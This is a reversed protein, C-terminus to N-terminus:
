EGEADGGANADTDTDVREPDTVALGDAEDILDRAHNESIGDIAALDDAFAAALDAFSDYGADRLDSARAEGIDTLDTFPDDDTGAASSGSGAGEGDGDTAEDQIEDAGAGASESGVETLEVPTHDRLHQVSNEALDVTDGPAYETGDQEIVGALIEYQAM